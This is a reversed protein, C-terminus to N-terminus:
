LVEGQNVMRGLKVYREPQRARLWLAYAIGLLPVALTIWPLSSVFTGSGGAIFSLKSFLLYLAYTLAAFALLPAAVTTILNTQRHRYFYVVTAISCVAQTGMLWALAPIGLWAYVEFPTVDTAWFATVVAGIVVAQLLVAVYPTKHKPHVKGFVGPLIGERGLAYFYRVCVNNLAMGCALSSTIILISMVQTLWHATFYTNPVTVANALTITEKHGGFVTTAGSSIAKSAENHPGYSLVFAWCVLTYFVGVGVMAIMTGLPVIRRPNRSEEGYNVVTETGVWSIIAFFIGIGPAVGTFIHAPNIPQASLGGNGGEVFVAITFITILLIETLLALGLVRVSLRIDFYAFLSIILTGVLAWTVWATTAGVADFKAKAFGAAGGMLESAFLSYSAMMAFGGALALIRGLGHSIFSYFGGTATLKRAMAVYGVAFLAYMVTAYIFGAPSSREEGFGVAVPLNFLVVALPASGTVALFLVGPLGAAGKRLKQVSEDGSVDLTVGDGVVGQLPTAIESAV